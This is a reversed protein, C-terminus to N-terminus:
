VRVYLDFSLVRAYDSTQLSMRLLVQMKETEAFFGKLEDITYIYPVYQEETPFYGKPLRKQPLILRYKELKWSFGSFPM